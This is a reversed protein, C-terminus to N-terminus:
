KFDLSPYYEDHILDMIRHLSELSVKLEKRVPLSLKEGSVSVLRVAATADACAAQLLRLYGATTISM